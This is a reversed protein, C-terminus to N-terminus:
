LSENEEVSAVKKKNKRKFIQEVSKVTQFSLSFCVFWLLLGEEGEKGFGLREQVGTCHYTCKKILNLLCLCSILEKEGFAM